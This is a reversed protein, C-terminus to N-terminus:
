EECNQKFVIATVSNTKILPRIALHNGRLEKFNYQMNAYNKLTLSDIVEADTSFEDRVWTMCIDSDAPLSSVTNPLSSLPVNITPTKYEYLDKNPNLSSIMLISKDSKKSITTFYSTDPHSVAGIAPYTWIGGAMNDLVSYVWGVPSLLNTNASFANHWHYFKDINSNSFIMIAEAHFAANQIQSPQTNPSLIGFEHIERSITQGNLTEVTNWYQTFDDIKRQITTAFKNNNLQIYFSVALASLERNTNRLSPTIEVISVNYQTDTTTVGSVNYPMVKIQPDVRKIADVMRTYHLFYQHQTGCFRNLGGAETGVRYRFSVGPYQAKLTSAIKFAMLWSVTEDRPIGAFGYGDECLSNYVYNSLDEPTNDMVITIDHIGSNIYPDIRDFLKQQNLVINADFLDGDQLPEGNQWDPDWGGLIRVTSIGDTFPVVNGVKNPPFDTNQLYGPLVRLFLGNKMWRDTLPSNRWFADSALVLNTLLCLTIILYFKKFM